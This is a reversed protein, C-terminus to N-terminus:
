KKQLETSLNGCEPCDSYHEFTKYHWDTRYEDNDCEFVCDCTICKFRKVTCIEKRGHWLIKKM